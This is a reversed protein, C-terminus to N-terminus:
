ISLTYTHSISEVLEPYTGTAATTFVTIFRQTGHFSCFKTVLKAVIVNGLVRSYPTLSIGLGHVISLLKRDTSSISIISIQHSTLFSLKFCPFLYDFRTSVSASACGYPQTISVTTLPASSAPTLPLPISM